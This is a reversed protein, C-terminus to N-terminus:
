DSEGFFDLEGHWFRRLIAEVEDRSVDDQGPDLVLAHWVHARDTFPPAPLRGTLIIVTHGDAFHRREAESVGAQNKLKSLLDSLKM